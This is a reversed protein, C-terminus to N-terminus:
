VQTETQPQPTDVVIGDLEPADADQADPVAPRALPIAMQPIGLVGRVVIGFMHDELKQEFPLLDYSVLCPHEKKEPDKVPGYKWGDNVKAQMWAEHQQQPTIVPNAAIARAGQEAPEIQWKPAEPGVRHSFDGLACSLIRSAEHAVIAASHFLGERHQEAREKDALANSAEDAGATFFETAVPFDWAILERGKRVDDSQIHRVRKFVVPSISPHEPIQFIAVRICPQKKDDQAELPDVGTVIAHNRFHFADSKPDDREFISVPAGQIPTKPM